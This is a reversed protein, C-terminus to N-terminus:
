HPLQFLGYWKCIKHFGHQNVLRIKGRNRCQVLNMRDHDGSSLEEARAEQRGVKREASAVFM